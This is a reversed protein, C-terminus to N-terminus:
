ISLYRSEEHPITLIKSSHPAVYFKANTCFIVKQTPCINLHSLYEVNPLDMYCQYKLLNWKWYYITISHMGMFDTLWRRVIIWFLEIELIEIWPLKMGLNSKSLIEILKEQLDEVTKWCYIVNIQILGEIWLSAIINIKSQM